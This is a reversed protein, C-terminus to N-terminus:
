FYPRLKNQWLTLSLHIFFHKLMSTLVHPYLMVADFRVAALNAILNKTLFGVQINVELRHSMELLHRAFCFKRPVPIDFSFCCRVLFHEGSLTVLLNLFFCAFKELLLGFLRWAFFAVIDVDFRLKFTWFMKFSFVALIFGHKSVM